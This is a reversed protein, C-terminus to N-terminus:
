SIKKSINITWRSPTKKESLPSVVRQQADKSNLGLLFFRHVYNQISNHDINPHNYYLTSALSKILSGKEHLCKFADGCLNQFFPWEASALSPRVRSILFSCDPQPKANWMISPEINMIVSQDEHVFFLEDMKERVGLVWTTVYAAALSALLKMKKEEPLDRMKSWDYQHAIIWQPNYELFGFHSELFPVSKATFVVPIPPSVSWSSWINNFISMFVNAYMCLQLDVGKKLIFQMKEDNLFTYEMLIPHTPSDFKKLAQISKVRRGTIADFLSLNSKSYGPELQAWYKALRIFFTETDRLGKLCAFVQIDGEEKGSFLNDLCGILYFYSGFTPSLHIRHLLASAIKKKRTRDPAIQIYKALLPLFQNLQHDSLGLLFADSIQNSSLDELLRISSLSVNPITSVASDGSVVSFLIVTQKLKYKAKEQISLESSSILQLILPLQPNKLSINCLAEEAAKSLLTASAMSLSRSAKNVLPPSSSTPYNNIAILSEMLYTIFQSNTYLARESPPIKTILKCLLTSFEVSKTKFFFLMLSPFDEEKMKQLTLSPHLTIYKVLKEISSFHKESSQQKLDHIADKIDKETPKQPQITENVDKILDEWEQATLLGEPDENVVNEYVKDDYNDYYGDEGMKILEDMLETNEWESNWAAEAEALKMELDSMKTGPKKSKATDNNKNNSINNTNNNILNNSNANNNSASNNNNNEGNNMQKVLGLHQKLDSLTKRLNNLNNSNRQTSETEGSPPSSSSSSSETQITTTTTANPKSDASVNANTNTNTNTANTGKESSRLPTSPNSTTGSTSKLDVKSRNKLSSSNSRVISDSTNNNSNIANSNGRPTLGTHVSSTDDYRSISELPTVIKTKLTTRSQSPSSTSSSSSPTTDLSFKVDKEKTQSNNNNNKNLTNGKHPEISKTTTTTTTTPTPTTTTHTTTNNAPINKDRDEIKSTSSTTRYNGIGITMSDLGGGIDEDGSVATISGDSGNGLLDDFIDHGKSSSVKSTFYNRTRDDSHYHLDSLRLLEDDEVSPGSSAGSGASIVVNNNNSKNMMTEDSRQKPNNNSSLGLIDDLDMDSSPKNPNIGLKELINNSKMENFKREHLNSYLLSDVDGDVDNDNIYGDMSVNNVVTAVDKPKPVAAGVGNVVSRTNKKTPAAKPSSTPKEDRYLIAILDDGDDGAVDDVNDDDKFSSSEELLSTISTMKPKSKLKNLIELTSDKFQLIDEDEDNVVAGDNASSGVGTRNNNTTKTDHASDRTFNRPQSSEVSTISVKSATNQTDDANVTNSSPTKKLVVNTPTTNPQINHRLSGSRLKVTNNSSSLNISNNSSSLNISSTSNNNTNNNNNINASEFIHVTNAVRQSLTKQILQLDDPVSSAPQISNFSPNRKLVNPELSSSSSSLSPQISNSSPNRKLVASEPQSQGNSNTSSNSQILDTPRSTRKIPGQSSNSLGPSTPSTTSTSSTSSINEIKRVVSEVLPMREKSTSHTMSSSIEPPSESIPQNVIKIQEGARNRIYSKPAGTTGPTNVNSIQQPASATPLSSSSTKPNLAPNPSANSASALNSQQRVPADVQVRPQARQNLTEKSDNPTSPNSRLNSNVNVNARPNLPKATANANTNLNSNANMKNPINSAQHSTNLPVKTPNSTTTSKTNTPNLIPQPQPQPQLQLNPRQQLNPGTHLTTQPKSQNQKNSATKLSDMLSMLERKWNQLNLALDQAEQTTNVGMQQRTKVMGLVTKLLSKTLKIISSVQQQEFNREITDLISTVQHTYNVISQKQILESQKMAKLLNHVHDTPTKLQQTLPDIQTSVSM